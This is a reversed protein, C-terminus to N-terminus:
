GFAVAAPIRLAVRDALNWGRLLVCTPKAVVAVIRPAGLLGTPPDIPLM